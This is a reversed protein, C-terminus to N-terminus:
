TLILTYRPFATILMERLWLPQLAGAMLKYLDNARSLRSQIEEMDKSLEITKEKLLVVETCKKVFAEQISKNNKNLEDIMQKHETYLFVFILELTISIQSLLHFCRVVKPRIM